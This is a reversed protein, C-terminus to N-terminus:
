ANGSREHEYRFLTGCSRLAVMHGGSTQKEKDLHSMRPSIQRVAPTRTIAITRQSGGGAQSGATSVLRRPARSAAARAAICHAAVAATRGLGSQLAVVRRRQAPHVPKAQSTRKCHHSGFNTQGAGHLRVTSVSCPWKLFPNTRLGACGSRRQRRRTQGASPARTTSSRSGLCGARPAEAYM